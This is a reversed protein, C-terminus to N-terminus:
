KILPFQLMCLNFLKILLAVLVSGPNLGQFDSKLDWEQICKTEKYVYLCPYKNCCQKYSSSVTCIDMMFLHTLLTCYAM